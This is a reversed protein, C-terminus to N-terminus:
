INIMSVDKMYGINCYDSITENGKYTLKTLQRGNGDYKVITMVIASGAAPDNMDATDDKGYVIYFNGSQDQIVNGTIPLDKKIELTKQLQMQESLISIYVTDECTYAIYYRNDTGWFENIASVDGYSYDMNPNITSQIPEKTDFSFSEVKAVEKAEAKTSLTLGILLGITLAFGKLSKILLQRKLTM